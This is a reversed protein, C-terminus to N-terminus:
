RGPVAGPVAAAAGMLADRVAPVDDQQREDEALVPQGILDGLNVRLERALAVLLDIQLIQREGREIKSLWDESRGMLGALVAQTFGRRVRYLAIREGISLEDGIGWSM